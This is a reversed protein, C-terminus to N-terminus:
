KVLNIDDIIMQVGNKHPKIHFDVEYRGPIVTIKDFLLLNYSRMKIRELGKKNPNNQIPEDYQITLGEILQGTTDNTFSYRSVERIEIIQKM